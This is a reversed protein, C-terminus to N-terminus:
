SEESGARSLATMTGTLGESFGRMMFLAGPGTAADGRLWLLRRVSGWRTSAGVEVVPLLWSTLGRALMSGHSALTNACTQRCM